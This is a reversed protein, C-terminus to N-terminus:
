YLLLNSNAKTCRDGLVDIATRAADEEAFAPKRDATAITIHWTTGEAAYNPADLRIRKRQRVAKTGAAPVQKNL